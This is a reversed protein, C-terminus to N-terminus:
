HEILSSVSLSDLGSLAAEWPMMRWTLNWQQPYYRLLSLATLLDLGRHEPGPLSRLARVM